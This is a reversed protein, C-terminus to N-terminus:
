SFPDMAETMGSFAGAMLPRVGVREGYNGRVLSLVETFLGLPHYLGDKAGKEKKEDAGLGPLVVFLTGLLAISGLFSALRSKTM